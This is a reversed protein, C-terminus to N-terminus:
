NRVDKDWIHYEQICLMLYVASQTIKKSDSRGERRGDHRDEYFLTKKIM